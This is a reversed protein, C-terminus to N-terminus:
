QSFWSGLRGGNTSLDRLELSSPTFLRSWGLEGSNCVQGVLDVEQLLFAQSSDIHSCMAQGALDLRQLFLDMRTPLITSELVRSSLGM